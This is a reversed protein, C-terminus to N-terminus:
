TLPGTCSLQSHVLIAGFEFLSTERMPALGAEEHLMVSEVFPCLILVCSTSRQRLRWKGCKLHPALFCTLVMRTTEPLWAIPPQHPLDKKLPPAYQIQQTASLRSLLSIIKPIRPSIYIIEAVSSLMLM